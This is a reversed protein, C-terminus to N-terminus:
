SEMTDNEANASIEELQQDIEPMKHTIHTLQSMSNIFFVSDVLDKGLRQVLDQGAPTIFYIKNKMNGKEYKARILNKEELSYIIPYITGQHLFVKSFSFIEKILDTGSMPKKSIILLIMIDKNVKVLREIFNIRDEITGDEPKVEKKINNM